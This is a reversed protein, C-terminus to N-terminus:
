KEYTYNASLKYFYMKSHRGNHHQQKQQYLIFSGGDSTDIDDNFKNTPQHQQVM